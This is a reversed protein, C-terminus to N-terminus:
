GGFAKILSDEKKEKPKIDKRLVDLLYYVPSDMIDNMKWGQELL